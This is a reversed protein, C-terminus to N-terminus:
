DSVGEKANEFAKAFNMLNQPAEGEMGKPVGGAFIAAAMQEMISGLQLAIGREADAMIVLSDGPAIGFMDRIEKPIVIQGKEGVKCIGFLYKGKTAEM